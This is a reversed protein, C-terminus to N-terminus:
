STSATEVYKFLPEFYGSVFGTYTGATAVRISVTSGPAVTAFPADHTTILTVNAGNEVSIPILTSNNATVAAWAPPTVSSGISVATIYLTKYAGIVSSALVAGAALTRSAATYRLTFIDTPKIDRIFKGALADYKQVRQYQSIDAM